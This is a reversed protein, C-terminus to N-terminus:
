ISSVTNEPLVEARVAALLKEPSSLPGNPATVHIDAELTGIYATAPTPGPLPQSM